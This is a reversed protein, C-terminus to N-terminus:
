GDAKRTAPWSPHGTATRFGNAVALLFWSISIVPVITATVWSDRFIVSLVSVLFTMLLVNRLAAWAEHRAFSGVPTTLMLIGPGIAWTVISLFHATAALGAGERRPERVTRPVQLATSPLTSPQSPVLHGQAIDGCRRDYEQASILGHDRDWRARRLMESRPDDPSYPDVSDSPQSYPSPPQRYDPFPETM